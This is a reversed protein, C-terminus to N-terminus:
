LEDIRRQCYRREKRMDETYRTSFFKCLECKGRLKLFCGGIFPLTFQIHPYAVAFFTPIVYVIITRNINDKDYVYM